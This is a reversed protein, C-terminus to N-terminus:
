KLSRVYRLLDMKIINQPTNKIKIISSFEKLLDSIDKKKSIKMVIIHAYAMLVSNTQVYYRRNKKLEDLWGNVMGMYSEDYMQITMRFSNAYQESKNQTVASM